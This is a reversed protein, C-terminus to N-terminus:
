GNCRHHELRQQILVAVDHPLLKMLSLVPGPDLSPVCPLNAPQEAPGPAPQDIGAASGSATNASSSTSAIHEDAASHDPATIIDVSGFVLGIGASAGAPAWPSRSYAVNSSASSSSPVTISNASSSPTVPAQQQVAPQHAQRRWSLSPFLARVETSADPLVAPLHIVLTSDGDDSGITFLGRLFTKYQILSQMSQGQYYATDAIISQVSGLETFPTPPIHFGAPAAVLSNICAEALRAIVKSEDTATSVPYQVQIAATCLLWAERVDPTAGDNAQWFVSTTMLCSAVTAAEISTFPLFM